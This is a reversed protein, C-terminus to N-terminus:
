IYSHSNTPLRPILIRFSPLMLVCLNVGWCPQISNCPQICAPEWLQSIPRLRRPCTSAKSGKKPSLLQPCLSPASSQSGLCFSPLRPYRQIGKYFPCSFVKPGLRHSLSSPLAGTLRTHLLSSLDRPGSLHHVWPGPTSFLSAQAQQLQWRRCPTFCPFLAPELSPPPLM